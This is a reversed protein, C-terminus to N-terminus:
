SKNGKKAESKSTEGKGLLLCTTSYIRIRSILKYTFLKPLVFNSVFEYIYDTRLKSPTDNM